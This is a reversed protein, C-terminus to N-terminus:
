SVLYRAPLGIQGGREVRKGRAFAACGTPFKFSNSAMLSPSDQPNIYQDHDDAAMLFAVFIAITLVETRSTSAVWKRCSLLRRRGFATQTENPPKETKKKQPSGVSINM